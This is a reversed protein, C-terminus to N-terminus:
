TISQNNDDLFLSNMVKSDSSITLIQGKMPYSKEITYPLGELVLKYCMVLNLSDTLFYFINIMNSM